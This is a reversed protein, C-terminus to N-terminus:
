RGEAAAFPLEGPLREHGPVGVLVRYPAEALLERAVPETVWVARCTVHGFVNDVEEKLYYRGGAEAALEAHEVEDAEIGLVHRGPAATYCFSGQGRTAGVLAGNDHVPFTVAQAMISARAVCILALGPPPAASTAPPALPEALKWSTCGTVLALCAVASFLARM